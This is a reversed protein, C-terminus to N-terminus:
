LVCKITQTQHLESRCYLSIDLLHYKTTTMQQEIILCTGQSRKHAKVGRLPGHYFLIDQQFLSKLCVKRNHCIVKFDATSLLFM